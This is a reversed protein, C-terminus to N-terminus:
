AELNKECDTLDISYVNKECAVDTSDVRIIPFVGVKQPNSIGTGTLNIKYTYAGSAPPLVATSQGLVTVNSSGPVEFPITKGDGSIKIMMKPMTESFEREIQVYAVNASVNRCTYGQETVIKLQMGPGCARAATLNKQIMPLLVGWIIGIAVITILVLLVTAIIASVGKKGKGRDKSKSKSKGKKQCGKAMEVEKEKITTEVDVFAGKLYKQWLIIEISALIEFLKTEATTLYNHGYVYHYFCM